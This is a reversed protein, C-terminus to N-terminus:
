NPTRISSSEKLMEDFVLLRKSALVENCHDSLSIKYTVEEDRFELARLVWKGM